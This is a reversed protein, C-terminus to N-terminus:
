LACVMQQLCVIWEVGYHNFLHRRFFMHKNVCFIFGLMRLLTPSFIKIQMMHSWAREGM